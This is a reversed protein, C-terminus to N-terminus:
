VDASLPAPGRRRVPGTSSRQEAASVWSLREAISEPSASGLIGGWLGAPVNGYRILGMSCDQGSGGFLRSRLVQLTSAEGTLFLWGKGANVREALRALAQATDYRPDTAISYIFVDRGLREGLLSQVKALKELNAWTERDQMSVCNILVLKGMLLDDYFLAKRLDHTQVVLNPIYGALPGKAPRACEQAPEGAPAGKTSGVALKGFDDAMEIREGSNAFGWCLWRFAVTM